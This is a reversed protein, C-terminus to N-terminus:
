RLRLPVRVLRAASVSSLATDGPKRAQVYLYLSGGQRLTLAATPRLVVNAWGSAATRRESARAVQDPPVAMVSVLAGNVWFGRAESVHVRV